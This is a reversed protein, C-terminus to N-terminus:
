RLKIGTFIARRTISEQTLEIGQQKGVEENFKPLSVHSTISMGSCYELYANFMEQRYSVAGPQIVCAEDLFALVNNNQVKYAWMEAKTRNTETFQYNHAILRKLGEIAWLLIGDRELSLKDVLNFDRSEPPIKKSFRIIIM